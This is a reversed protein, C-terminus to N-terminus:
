NSRLQLGQYAQFFERATPHLTHVSKIQAATGASLLGNQTVFDPVFINELITRVLIPPTDIHATLFAVTAVTAVGGEPLRCEPYDVPYLLQMHFVPLEMALKWADVIPLLDYQGNHILNVLDAAGEKMVVVAADANPHELLTRWDSTDLTIDKLGLGSRALLIQSVARAGSKEGGLLVRRNALKAISDIGLERKVLIHVTEYCLPTIVALTPASTSEEELLALDVARRLLMEANEASGASSVTIAECHAHQQLMQALAESLKAYNGGAMGGAIRVRQPMHNSLWAASPLLMLLWTLMLLFAIAILGRQVWRHTETPEIVRHDFVAGFVPVGLLWYWVRRARSAPRAHIPSGQLFRTLDDALANASVYRREPAKQLCVDIITELDQPIDPNVTRAMPAPRHIVNMITQVVSAGKFPPKGTVITYLIAGLSYVDTAHHQEDVKGAAQEPSMYSPTGLAAGSATLGSDSGISKALGFDTIRVQDNADILVNAPKLDRHLIGRDHAYQIARAVDRVYRAALKCDIPGTAILKSLDTGPVYDMSFFHHGEYEGCQYVTVINAHDLKAASRAEAYFRSVEEDSALAGSRIMKIAVPRELQVQHGYYVVGMGGRGLVRELVYDGFRCPLSPKSAEPMSGQSGLSFELSGADRDTPLTPQDTAEVDEGRKIPLTDHSWAPLGAFARPGSAERYDQTMEPDVGGGTAIESLKPGALREIWDAAALLDSLQEQLEPHRAVFDERNPVIGSDCQQMYEALALDIKLELSNEDSQALKLEQRLAIKCFPGGHIRIKAVLRAVFASNIALSQWLILM